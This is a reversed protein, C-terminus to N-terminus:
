YAAAVLTPVAKWDNGHGLKGDRGQGWCHLSGDAKQACNHRISTSVRVWDEDTGVQEPTPTETVGPLGLQGYRNEGWCYLAGNTQIGCDHYAGRDLDLWAQDSWAPAPTEDGSWCYLEGSANLACNGHLSVWDAEAGVPSIGDPGGGSEDPPPMWQHLTGDAALGRYYDDAPTVSRWDSGTGIRIPAAGSGPGGDGLPGAWDSGWCFLEGGVKIGCGNTGWIFPTLWDDDGIRVPTESVLSGTYRVAYNDGWCYL